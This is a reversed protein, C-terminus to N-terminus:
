KAPQYWLVVNGNEFPRTKELALSLKEEVGDFMTRGRGLVIPTLVLQYEDILRAATLQSVITGSGMLVLDPGSAEKMKRVEAAIDGKVVRTNEWSAKELTRSFVVKPLSNMGKAVDPNDKSAQPTPWYARMLDYTVRGFLLIGGGRTNEASFAQWEPDRKHAWSMDGKADTFYGDLSISNFVVLRSM